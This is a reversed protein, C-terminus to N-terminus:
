RSNDVTSPAPASWLGPRGPVPRWGTVQRGGNFVARGAGQWIVQHGNGGSDRADLTLPSSLRYDGPALRVVLDSHLSGNLARVRQQAQSLSCPHVAVCASGAGRPAAFLTLPLPRGAPTAAVAPAPATLLLAALGATATLLRPRPRLPTWGWLCSVDSRECSQM